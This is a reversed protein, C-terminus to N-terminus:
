RRPLLRAVMEALDVTRQAYGWENDYWGFVKVTHGVARTLGLDFLCSADEGIVDHSVIPEETCRLIGKLPGDAAARFASNV